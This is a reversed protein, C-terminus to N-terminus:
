ILPVVVVAPLIFIKVGVLAVMKVRVQLGAIGNAHGVAFCWGMDGIAANMKALSKAWPKFDADPSQVAVPNKV